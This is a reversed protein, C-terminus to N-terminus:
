DKVVQVKGNSAISELFKLDPDNGLGFVQIPIRSERLRDRWREVAARDGGRGFSLVVVSKNGEVRGLAQFAHELGVALADERGRDAGRVADEITARDATPPISVPGTPGSRIVSEVERPRLNLSLAVRKLLDLQADTLGAANDLVTMYTWPRDLNLQRTEYTDVPTIRVSQYASVEIDCVHWVNGVAGPRAAFRRLSQHTEEKGPSAAAAGGQYLTVEAGSRGLAESKSELVNSYDHVYYHYTGPLVGLVTVTEPGKGHQCDVDLKVFEKSKLSGQDGFFIHFKKGGPLPGELHADLDEPKEGWSLVLRLQGRSLGPSLLADLREEAGARLGREFEVTTFKPAAVKIGVLGDPAGTIRFEGGASTTARLGTGSIRVEAGGLPKATTADKIQGVLVASGLPAAPGVPPVVLDRTVLSWGKRTTVRVVDGDKVRAVRWEIRQPEGTGTARDILETERDADARRLGVRGATRARYGVTVRAPDAPDRTITLDDAEAYGRVTDARVAAWTGGAGVLALVAAAILAWGRRRGTKVRRELGALEFRLADADADAAPAPRGPPPPSGPAPRSPGGFRALCDTKGHFPCVTSGAPVTMKKVRCFDM